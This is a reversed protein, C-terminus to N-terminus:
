YKEAITKDLGKRILMRKFISKRSLLKRFLHNKLNYKWKSSKLLVTSSKIIERDSEDNIANLEELMWGEFVNGLHYAYNNNTTLRWGGTKLVPEDLYLRESNGGLQYTSNEIPLQEFVENKYTAVVHGSGVIAKVKTDSELTLNTKLYDKNYTDDWGISKYFKILAEPNIVKTFQLKKSFFNDFLLNYSFTTYLKFQPIIGVVGAKPFVNFVQTTSDQWGNLFLVDADSVTVYEEEINRLVKLLSNLKGIPETHIVEHITGKKFEDNLFDVVADCSGNNVITIATKQHITKYLSQLSMKFITFADKFYGEFNPIHLPMVIRYNYSNATSEQLDKSPNYKKRM